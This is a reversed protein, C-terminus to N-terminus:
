QVPMLTYTQTEVVSVGPIAKVACPATPVRTCRTLPPHHLIYAFHSCSLLM